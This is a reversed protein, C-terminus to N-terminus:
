YYLTATAAAAAAAASYTNTTFLVFCACHKLVSGRDMNM